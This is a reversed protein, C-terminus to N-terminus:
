PHNSELYIGMFNFCYLHEENKFKATTLLVRELGM